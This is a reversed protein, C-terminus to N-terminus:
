LVVERYAICSFYYDFCYYQKTMVNDVYSALTLLMAAYLSIMRKM